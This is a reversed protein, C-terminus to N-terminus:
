NNIGMFFSVADVNKPEEGAMDAPLHLLIATKNIRQTSM